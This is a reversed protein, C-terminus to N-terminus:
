FELVANERGFGDNRRVDARPDTVWQQGDLLFSYEHRGSPLRVDATWHGSADPGVLQIHGAQWDTFTGVVEVQKAAPARIEFHVTVRNDPAAPYSLFQFAVSVLLMAAAGAMAPLFWRGHEPWLHQQFWAWAPSDPQEPLQAMVRQVFDLPATQRVQRLPELPDDPLPQKNM